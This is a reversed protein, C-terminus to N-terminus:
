QVALAYDVRRESNLYATLNVVTGFDEFIFYIDAREAKVNRDCTFLALCAEQYIYNALWDSTFRQNFDMDGPNLCAPTYGPTKIYVRRRGARHLIAIVDELIIHM